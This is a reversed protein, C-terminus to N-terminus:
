SPAKEELRARLRTLARFLRAKVGAETIGLADAIEATGLQEIHRMLLVERDRPALAAVAQMVEERLEQRMVRNSPSTDPAALHGALEIASEDSLLPAPSERAVSRRQAFLHRRHTERIREGALQRLWGFFPLPLDRLYEDLQRAADALTEQVVDSADVRSTLRRDLHAAVMRRLQDRYRELLERRASEDGHGAREILEHTTQTTETM